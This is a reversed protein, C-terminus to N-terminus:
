RPLPHCVAPLPEQWFEADGPMEAAGPAWQEIAAALDPRHHTHFCCHKTSQAAAKEELRQTFAHSATAMAIGENSGERQGRPAPLDQSGKPAPILVSHLGPDTPVWVQARDGM